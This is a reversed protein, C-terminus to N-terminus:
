LLRDVILFQFIKLTQSLFRQACHNGVIAGLHIDFSNFGGEGSLNYATVLAGIHLGQDGAVFNDPAM